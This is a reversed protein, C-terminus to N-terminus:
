KISLNLIKVSFNDLPLQSKFFDSRLFQGCSIKFKVIYFKAEVVRIAPRFKEIKFGEIKLHEFFGIEFDSLSINLV